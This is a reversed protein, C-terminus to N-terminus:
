SISIFFTHMYRKMTKIFILLTTVNKCLLEIQIFHNLVQFAALVLSVIMMMRTFLDLM